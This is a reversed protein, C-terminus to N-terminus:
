SNPGMKLGLNPGNIVFLLACLGNATSFLGIERKKTMCVGWRLGRHGRHARKQGVSMEARGAIDATHENVCAIKDRGRTLGDHQRDPPTVALSKCTAFDPLM